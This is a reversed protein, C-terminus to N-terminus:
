GISDLHTVMGLVHCNAGVAGFHTFDLRLRLASEVPVTIPIEFADNWIKDSSTKAKELADLLTISTNIVLGVAQHGFEGDALTGVDQVYLHDSLVFGTTDSVLMVTDGASQAGSLLQDANTSAPPTFGSGYEAWGEDVGSDFPNLMVHFTGPNTNATAIEVPCHYAVIEASFKGSVDIEVGKKFNTGVGAHIISSHALIVAGTKTPVAM